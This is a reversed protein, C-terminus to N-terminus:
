ADHDTRDRHLVTLEREIPPQSSHIIETLGSLVWCPDSGAAVQDLVMERADRRSRALVCVSDNVFLRRARIREKVAQAM